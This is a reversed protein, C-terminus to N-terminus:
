FWTKRSSCRNRLRDHPPRQGHESPAFRGDRWHRAYRNQKWAQRACPSRRSDPDSSLCGRPIRQRELQRRSHSKRGSGNSARRIKLSSAAPGDKIFVWKGANRVLSRKSSSPCIFSSTNLVRGELLALHVCLADDAGIAVIRVAALELRRLALDARLAVIRLFERRGRMGAVRLAGSRRVADGAVHRHPSIHNDIRAVIMGEANGAGVKGCPEARWICARCTALVAVGGPGGRRYFLPVSRHAFTELSIGFGEM